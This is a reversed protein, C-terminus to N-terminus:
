CIVLSYLPRGVPLLSSHCYFIGHEIYNCVGSGKEVAAVSLVTQAAYLHVVYVFINHKLRNSCCLLEVLYGKSLAPAGKNWFLHHVRYLLVRCIRLNRLIIRRQEGADRGYCAGERGSVNALSVSDGQAERGSAWKCDALLTVRVPNCHLEVAKHCICGPEGVEGAKLRHLAYIHLLASPIHNGNRYIKLLSARPAVLSVVGALGKSQLYLVSWVEREFSKYNAKIGAM